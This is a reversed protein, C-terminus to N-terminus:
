FQNPVQMFICEYYSFPKLSVFMVAPLSKRYQCHLSTRGLKLLCIGQLLSYLGEFFSSKGELALSQLYSGTVCM